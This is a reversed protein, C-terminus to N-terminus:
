KRAGRWAALIISIGHMFLTFPKLATIRQLFYPFSPDEPFHVFCKWEVFLGIMAAVVGAIVAVLWGGKRSFLVAGWGVLLGVAPLVYFGSRVAWCVLFAGIAGGVLAGLMALPYVFTDAWANETKRTDTM